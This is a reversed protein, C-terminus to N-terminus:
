AVTVADVIQFHIENKITTRSMKLTLGIERAAAHLRNNSNTKNEGDELTIKVWDGVAFEKLFAIVQRKAESRPNEADLKAKKIESEDVKQFKM